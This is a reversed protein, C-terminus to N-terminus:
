YLFIQYIGTWSQNSSSTWVHSLNVKLHYKKQLTQRVQGTYIGCMWWTFFLGECILFVTGPDIGPILSNAAVTAIALSIGGEVFIAHCICPGTWPTDERLNEVNRGFLVCPCFLGTLGAIFASLIYIPLM